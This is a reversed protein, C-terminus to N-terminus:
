QVVQQWKKKKKKSMTWFYRDFGWPKISSVPIYCSGIRSSVSADWTHGAKWHKGAHRGVGQASTLSSEWHLLWVLLAGPTNGQHSSPDEASPLPSRQARDTSWGPLQVLESFPTPCQLVTQLIKHLSLVFFGRGWLLILNQLLIYLRYLMATNRAQLWSFSASINDRLNISSKYGYIREPKRMDRCKWQAHRTAWCQVKSLMLWCVLTFYHSKSSHKKWRLFTDM